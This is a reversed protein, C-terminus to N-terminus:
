PSVSLWAYARISRVLWDSEFLMYRRQNHIKVLPSGLSVTYGYSWAGNPNKQPSFQGVASYTVHRPSALGQAWIPVAAFLLIKSGLLKKTM